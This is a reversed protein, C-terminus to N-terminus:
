KYYLRSNTYTSSVCLNLGDIAAQSDMYVTITSDDPSVRLATYIAAAEAKTSSPWNRITGYAYTAVSNLYGANPILQVWSWGMSLPLFQPPLTFLELLPSAVTLDYGVASSSSSFDPLTDLRRYYPIVTISLNAWSYPSTVEMTSQQIRKCDTPLILSKLLFIKFTCRPSVATYKNASPFLIHADCGSCPRLRIVDGPSSLCDSIWHVIMCTDKKPQVSLGPVLTISSTASLPCVFRNLLQDHSNPLTTNAKIDLYWKHPLSCGRKDALTALYTTRYATWSILHSGSPAILQSLYYSHRKRLVKLCAKFVHSSMCTYLPTHGPLTLDPSALSFRAHQLRFPTSTM